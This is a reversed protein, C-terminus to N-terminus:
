SAAATRKSLMRYLAEYRGVVVHIAFRPEAYERARRGMREREDPDNALRSLFDAVGDMDGVEAVHGGGSEGLLHASGSVRTVVSPLGSAMAELLTNSLGERHSTSVYIDAMGFWDPTDGQWGAMLVSGALGERAVHAQVSEQMPGGGVIVLTWDGRLTPLAKAWARLLGDPNKEESLRGVYLVVSRGALGLRRKLDGRESPSRVHYAQMDVGNPLLYVRGPPIGFTVAEEATEPSVAAVASVRRHLPVTFVSWRDGALAGRIGHSASSMLKLVVPRGLLKGMLITLAALRGYQHVHWVDYRRGRLLLFLSLSWTSSLLHLGPVYACWLRRIRFGEGGEAPPWASDRRESVVTVEHGRRSLEASLRWAAREYGGVIPHFQPSVMLVRLARNPDEPGSM